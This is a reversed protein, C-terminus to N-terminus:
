GSASKRDPLDRTAVARTIDMTTVIGCLRGRDVVLVRHAGTRRMLEAASQVTMDLPLQPPDAIMAEEVTHESLVDWEPSDSVRLREVVDLSTDDWMEAFYEAPPADDDTSPDPDFVDAVDRETPVGPTASEFAIISDSSLLGVIENGAMVPLANVGMAALLDVADRLSADAGITVPAPTMLSGLKLM